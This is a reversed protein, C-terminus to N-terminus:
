GNVDGKKNSVNEEQVDHPQCQFLGDFFGIRVSARIM